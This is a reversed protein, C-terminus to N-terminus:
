SFKGTKPKVIQLKFFEQESECLVLITIEAIIKEKSKLSCEFIPKSNTLLDNVLIACSGIVKESDILNIILGEQADKPKLVIAMEWSYIERRYIKCPTYTENNMRINWSIKLVNCDSTFQIQKPILTLVKHTM